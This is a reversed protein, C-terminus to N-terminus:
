INPYECVNSIIYKIELIEYHISNFLNIGYKYYYLLLIGANHILYNLLRCHLEM